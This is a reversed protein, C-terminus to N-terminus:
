TLAPINPPVASPAVPLVWDPLLSSHSNRGNHAVQMVIKGGRGHVADTVARWGAIQDATYIGPANPYGQAQPSIATGETIILGASSRQAYYEANLATPVNGTGARMRTLPAMVIRNPLRMAGLRLPTLLIGISM